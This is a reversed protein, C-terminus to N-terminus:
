PTLSWRRIWRQARNPLGVWVVRATMSDAVVFAPVFGVRLSRMPEWKSTGILDLPYGASELLEPSEGRTGLVLHHDAEIVLLAELIDASREVCVECGVTVFTIAVRKDTSFPWEPIGDSVLVPGRPAASWRLQVTAALIFM